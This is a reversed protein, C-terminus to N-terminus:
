PADWRISRLLTGSPTFPTQDNLFARPKEHTRKAVVKGYQQGAPGSLILM